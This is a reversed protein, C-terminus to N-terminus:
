LGLPFFGQQEEEEEDFEEEDFYGGKADGGGPAHTTGIEQSIIELLNEIQMPIVQICPTIYREKAKM